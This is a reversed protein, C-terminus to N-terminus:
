GVYGGGGCTKGLLDPARTTSTPIYEPPSASRSPFPAMSNSNSLREIQHTHRPINGFAAQLLTAPILDPNITSLDYTPFYSFTNCGFSLTFNSVPPYVIFVKAQLTSHLVLHSTLGPHLHAMGSQPQAPIIQELARRLPKELIGWQSALKLPQGCCHPMSCHYLSYGSLVRLVETFVSISDLECSNFLLQLM